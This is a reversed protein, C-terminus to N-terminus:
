MREPASMGMLSLARALAIRTADVLRLRAKSLPLHAPDDSIVRTEDRNDYFATLARALEYAYHPLPTAEMRAAALAVVEPLEIIKRILALEQPHTLLDLEGDAFDIEREAAMRLMSCIRAHAYQVYYVPNEPSERTALELDFEFHSDPTRSMYIYRCADTGVEDVLERVTVIDGRRKSLRVSEGGRKFSVIQNIIFTFREPEIGFADVAAKMHAVHGHHDAGLVNVVRDFGRKLFKDYHYAIDTGFYTPGLGRSRVVVVDNGEGLLESTFWRAGDREVIHGNKELLDMAADFEGNALLSSENFWVDYTAGLRELDARNLAITRELAARALAARGEASPMDAFKRGEDSFIQGALEVVFEGEYTEEPLTADEGAARMYHTYLTENFIRMQNGADNFYYERTVDYGAAELVNAVGSGIVAGWAHGVHLPGTPNVSVYEVQVRRGRGTDLNGFGEGLGQVEAVQSRLWSDALAFNIFGPPAAWARGVEPSEPLATVAQEAIAMPSMRMARALRLAVSTSYDGREARRPREIEVSAGDAAPLKGDAGARALADAVLGALRETILM